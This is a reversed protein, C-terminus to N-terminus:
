APTTDTEEATERKIPNWYSLLDSNIYSNTFKAIVPITKDSNEMIHLNRLKPASKM